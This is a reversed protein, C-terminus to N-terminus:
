VLYNLLYASNVKIFDKIKPLDLNNTKEFGFDLLKFSQELRDETTLDKINKSAQIEKNFDGTALNHYFYEIQENSMQTNNIYNM